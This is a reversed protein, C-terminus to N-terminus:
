NMEPVPSLLMKSANVNARAFAFVQAFWASFIEPNNSLQNVVESEKWWRAEMVEDPNNEWGLTTVKAILIHDFEHEILDNELHHKYRISGVNLLDLSAKIGLEEAIRRRAATNIDENPLPHSCCTNAWLGGSHYKHMARRQLLYEVGDNQKRVVMVSFALHLDGRVHATMKDAYGTINGNVDVLPVLITNVIKKMYNLGYGAHFLDIVPPQSLIINL